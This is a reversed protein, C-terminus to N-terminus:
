GSTLGQAPTWLEVTMGERLFAVGASVLKDGAELGEFVELLNGRIDGVVVDKVRLRNNDDVVFMPVTQRPTADGAERSRQILGYEIAISALPVLYVTRGDLYQDFNFTVSATMGPRLDADSPSLRVRVPFSNGSEARSAIQNVIGSVAVGAMTPFTVQVVQGYDVDRILTEPVRVDVEIAEATQLVFAEQGSSTEQFPDISRSAITGSFPAALEARSHDLEKGDLDSEVSRVNALAAAHNATATDVESQSVVRKEFLSVTRDYIQKTDAANARAINLQARAQEVALRLPEADLRALVQGERVLDGRTVLVQEVTGGVAFSLPSTNAAVLKGSIRRSQGTAQEGVVFFKVRPTEEVPLAIDDGCGAVMLIAVLAAAGRTGVTM